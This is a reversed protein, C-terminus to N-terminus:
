RRQAGYTRQRRHVSLLGHHLEDADGIKEVHIKLKIVGSQHVESRRALLLQDTLDVRATQLSFEIRV